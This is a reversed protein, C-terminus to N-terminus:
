IHILSLDHDARPQALARLLRGIAAEGVFEAVPADGPAAAIEDGVGLAALAQVRGRDGRQVVHGALVEHELRLDQDAGRAAEASDRICM